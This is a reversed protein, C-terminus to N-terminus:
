EAVQKESKSINNFVIHDWEEYLVTYVDRALKEEERMEMLGAIEDDTLIGTFSCCDGPALTSESSKEEAAFDISEEVNNITKSCSAILFTMGAIALIFVKKRTKM